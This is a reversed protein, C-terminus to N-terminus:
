VHARGIKLVKPLDSVGIEGRKYPYWHCDVRGPRNQSTWGPSWDGEVFAPSPLIAPGNVPQEVLSWPGVVATGCVSFCPNKNFGAGVDHYVSNCLRQLSSRKWRKAGSLCGKALLNRLHQQGDSPSLSAGRTLCVGQYVFLLSHSWLNPFVQLDSDARKQCHSDGESTASAGTRRIFLLRLLHFFFFTLSGTLTKRFNGSHWLIGTPFGDPNWSHTNIDSQVRQPRLGSILNKKRGM